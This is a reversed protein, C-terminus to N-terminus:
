IIPMATMVLDREQVVEVCGSRVPDISKVANSVEIQARENFFNHLEKAKKLDLTTFRNLRDSATREIMLEYGVFYWLALAIKPKNSEILCDMVEMDSICYHENLAAAFASIFTRIARDECADFVSAPDGDATQGIKALNEMSIGPLADAYLGSEAGSAQASLGIYGKM